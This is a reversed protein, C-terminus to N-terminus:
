IKKSCYRALAAALPVPVAEGVQDYQSELGGLFQFSDPFGMLRANERVSLVRDEYPHIFRSHGIVTPALENPMLRVWNTYTKSTASQFFVLAAGLKLKEIKKLKKPSISYWAHNPIDHFSTPSPLTLIEQVTLTNPHKVPQLKINSIFLRKRSSPSGYNEASLLNFYIPDYGVRKFERTLAWELEDTFLEPVNEMLFLAPQFDGIIRIADLVLGGVEDEYLRALPDKQRFKNASTYPECPPSAIIVDPMESLKHMIGLAHLEHIDENFFLAEPFNHHYTLFVEYSSDVAAIIKFGEQQFGATFGGAGSFLDLVTRAM